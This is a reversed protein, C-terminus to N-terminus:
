LECSFTEAAIKEVRCQTLHTILDSRVWFRLPKANKASVFELRTGTLQAQFTVQPVKLEKYLKRGLSPHYVTWPSDTNVDDAILQKVSHLKPTWTTWVSSARDSRADDTGQPQRIGANWSSLCDLSAIPEGFGGSFNDGSQKERSFSIMEDLM